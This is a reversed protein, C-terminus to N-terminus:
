GWLSGVKSGLVAGGLAGAWPNGPTTASRGADMGVGLGPNMASLQQRAYDQQNTYGAWQNQINQQGQNWLNAGQTALANGITAQDRVGQQGLQAGQLARNQNGTFMNDARGAASEGLQGLTNAGQLAFTRNNNTMADQRQAYQEGLGAQLNYDQFRLDTGVRGLNRMLDNRSDVEAFGLGSNGFSSGSSFKPAVTNAYSRSLDGQAAAIMPDLFLNSGAYANRAATGAQTGQGVLGRAAGMEANGAATGNRSGDMFGGLTNNVQGTMPNSLAGSIADIGQTQTANPGQTLSFTPAKYPQSAVAGARARFDDLYARASPDMLNQTTQTKDGSGLAGAAAGLGAGLLQPNSFLGSLGSAAAGGAAPGLFGGGTGLVSPAGAGLAGGFTSGGLPGAASGAGSLAGGATQFGTAGGGGLAGSFMGGTEGAGGLAAAADAASIGGAGAAATGGGALAGGTMMELGLGGTALGGVLGLGLKRMNAPNDLWSAGEFGLNQTGSQDILYRQIGGTDMTGQSMRFQGTGPDYSVQRDNPGGDRLWNGQADVNFNTQRTGEPVPEYGAIYSGGGEGTSAYIPAGVAGAGALQRPDMYLAMLEDYTM